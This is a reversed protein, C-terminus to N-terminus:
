PALPLFTVTNRQRRRTDLHAVLATHVATPVMRSLEEDMSRYVPERGNFAVPDELCYWAFDAGGEGWHGREFAAIRHEELTEGDAAVQEDITRHLPLQWCVVPKTDVQPWGRAEALHHLACGTPADSAAPNHFICAGDVLRTHDEGDEDTAIVGHAVAVDHQAMTSPDLEEVALRQLEAGDDEETLYAGHSCCGEDAHADLPATIGRCGDGYVCTWSSLLFSVDFTYQRHAPDDPDPITVWERTPRVPTSPTTMTTGRYRRACPSGPTVQSQTIGASPPPAGAM